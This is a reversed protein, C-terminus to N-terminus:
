SRDLIADGQKSPTVSARRRFMGAPRAPGAGRSFRTLEQRCTALISLGPAASGSAPVPALRRPSSAGSTASDIFSRRPLGTASCDIRLSGTAGGVSVCCSTFGPFWVCCGHAAEARMTKQLSRQFWCPVLVPSGFPRGGPSLTRTFANLLPALAPRSWSAPAGRWPIQERVYPACRHSDASGGRPRWRGDEAGEKGRAMEGEAGEWNTVRGSQGVLARHRYRSRYPPRGRGSRAVLVQCHSRCYSWPGM